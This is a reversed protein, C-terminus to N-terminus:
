PIVAQLLQDLHRSLEDAPIPMNNELWWGILASIGGAAFCAMIPLPAKSEQGQIPTDKLQAEIEEAMQRRIMATLSETQREVFLRSSLTRHSAAYEISRLLLRRRSEFSDGQTIRANLEDRVREFIHHLVDYKDEFHKYFTARHVLARECIESVTISEFSREDLLATLADLILKRTRRIRLDEKPNSSM